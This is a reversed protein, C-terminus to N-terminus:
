KKVAKYFMEGDHSQFYVGIIRKRRSNIVTYAARKRAGGVVNINRTNSEVFVNYARIRGTNDVITIGDYDLMDMFLECFATLKSENYTKTRLFLKSFSIPEKLWVGDSFFGNDEYDKDVIVCLAGHINKFVSDFVNEYMTKIENLKKETTRLKSFSADVFEKIETEWDTVKTDDLTNNISLKEGKLSKLNITYNSIPEVHVISIKDSREKLVSSSFILKSLNQEKISNLVRCIGYTIDNEKINVFIIWNHKFFPALKKIHYNFKVETVTDSFLSIRYCNPITKAVFDINNTFLINPRLKVGEEEYTSLESFFNLFQLHLKKPFNEFERDMFESVAVKATSYTVTDQMIAVGLFGFFCRKKCKKNNIIVFLIKITFCIKTIKKYNNM